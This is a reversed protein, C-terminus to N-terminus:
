ENHVITKFDPLCDHYKFQLEPIINTQGRQTSLIVLLMGTMVLLGNSVKLLQVLFPIPYGISHRNLAHIGGHIFSSLPKWSYEKFEQLQDLAVKPAKGQLQKLMESLMPLKEARKSSDQTLDDMIKAVDIDSASFLLWM